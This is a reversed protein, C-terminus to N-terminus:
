MIMEMHIWCLSKVQGAMEEAMYLAMGISRGSHETPSLNWEGGKANLMALFTLGTAFIDVSRKYKLKGNIDTKWYEPAKFVFTGVDSSMASTEDEPDLFKSLGFDTLKILIQGTTNGTTVLINSPKIDRYIIDNCHLYDVGRAIQIM